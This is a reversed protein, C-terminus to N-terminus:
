PICIVGVRELDRLMDYLENENCRVLRMLEFTSRQGDLWFLLFRHSRLFGRQEIEQLAADLEVTRYPASASSASPRQLKIKETIKERMSSTAQQKSLSDPTFISPNTDRSSNAEISSPPPSVSQQSAAPVFRFRCKSWTSLWNLAKIGTRGEAKAEEVQGNIFAITGEELTVDFGRRVKLLGTARESQLAQIVDVLQNLETEQYHFM